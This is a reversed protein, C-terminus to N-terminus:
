EDDLLVTLQMTAPTVIAVAVARFGRRLMKSRAVARHVQTTRRLSKSRPDGCAILHLLNRCRRIGRFNLLAAFFKRRRLLTNM